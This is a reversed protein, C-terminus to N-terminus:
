QRALEAQAEAQLALAAERGTKLGSLVATEAQEVLKRVQQWGAINPETRAFPLCDFAARNGPWAEFYAKVEPDEAISRRIPVYGTALTWERM